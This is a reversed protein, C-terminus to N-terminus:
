QSGCLWLYGSSGLLQRGNFHFSLSYEQYLNYKRQILWPWRWFKLIPFFTYISSPWALSPFMIPPTTLKPKDQGCDTQSCDRGWESHLHNSHPWDCRQDERTAWITFLGGAICFVQTQDRPWFSGRSFPIAIWELIRAQVIWHPQLSNSVVSHCISSASSIVGGPDILLHM